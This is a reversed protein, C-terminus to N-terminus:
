FERQALKRDRGVKGFAPFLGYIKNISLHAAVNSAKHCYIVYNISNDPFLVSFGQFGQM